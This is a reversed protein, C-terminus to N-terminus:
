YHFKNGSGEPIQIYPISLETDASKWYMRDDIENPFADNWVGRAIEIAEDIPKAVYYTM